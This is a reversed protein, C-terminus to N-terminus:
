EYRLAAIPNLRSARYAPIAGAIMGIVISLIMSLLLLDYNLVTTLMGNRPGISIGFSPLAFSVMSGLFIGLLGGVFGLMGSNLLFLLLIDRNKAGIAKMIGIDKTKELVATFMTNAVGIAGVIWSVAAILALFITVSSTIQSFRQQLALPSTVAFDPKDTRVHRVVLLKQTIAETTQEIYTTDAVKVSISSYENSKLTSTGSLVDRADKESMYLGNDNGGLGSSPALIGIVRFPIDEIFVTYGVLLPKKFVETALRSGIVITRSEGQTLLRGSDVTTTLFDKFVSADVGQISISATETNYYVSARGSVIPNISKIGPILKLAQYEKTSLPDATTTGGGGGGERGGGFARSSGASITIVDQGLGAIQSQVNQQLGEGISIISVVATVGIVIGVITLWSRLKSHVLMNFALLIIKHLRM